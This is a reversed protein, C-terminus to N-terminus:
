HDVWPRVRGSIRFHPSSRTLLSKARGPCTKSCITATPRLPPTAEYVTGCKSCLRRLYTRRMELRQKETTGAWVGYRQNPVLAYDLCEASVPCTACVARLKKLEPLVDGRKPYWINPEAASGACAARVRWSSDLEANAVADEEDIMSM